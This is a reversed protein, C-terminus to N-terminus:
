QKAKRAKKTKKTKKAPKTKRAKATPTKPTRKAGAATTTRKRTERHGAITESTGNPTELTISGGGQLVEHAKALAQLNPNDPVISDRISQMNLLVCTCGGQQAPADPMVALTAGQDRLLLPVPRFVPNLEEISIPQHDGNKDATRILFPTGADSIFILDFATIDQSDPM